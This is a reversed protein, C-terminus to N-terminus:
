VFGDNPWPLNRQLFCQSSLPWSSTPPPNTRAHQTGARYLLDNFTWTLLHLLLCFFLSRLTWFCWHKLVETRNSFFMRKRKKMERKALRKMYQLLWPIQKKKWTEVPLHLSCTKCFRPACLPIASRSRKQVPRPRPTHTRDLNLCPGPTDNHCVISPQPISSRWCICTIYTVCLVILNYINLNVHKQAHYCMWKKLINPLFVNNSWTSVMYKM